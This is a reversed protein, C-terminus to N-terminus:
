LSATRFDKIKLNLALKAQTTQSTSALFSAQSSLGIHRKPKSECINLAGNNNKYPQTLIQQFSQRGQNKIDVPYEKHYINIIQLSM